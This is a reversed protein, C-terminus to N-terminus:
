KGQYLLNLNHKVVNRGFLDKQLGLMRSAHLAGLIIGDLSTTYGLSLICLCKSISSYHLLDIFLLMLGLSNSLLISLVHGINM